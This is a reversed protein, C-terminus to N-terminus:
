AKNLDRVLEDKKSTLEEVSIENDDNKDYVRLFKKVEKSLERLKENIKGKRL